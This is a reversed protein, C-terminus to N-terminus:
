TRLARPFPVNSEPPVGRRTTCADAPAAYNGTLDRLQEFQHRMTDHDRQMIRIPM